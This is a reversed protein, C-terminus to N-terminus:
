ARIRSLVEQIAADLENWAAERYSHGRVVFPPGAYFHEYQQQRGAFATAMLDAAIRFLQMHELAAPRTWHREFTAGVDPDRLADASAPFRFTGSGSLERLADIFVPLFEQCWNLAAYVYRRNPAVGGSPWTECRYVQADVLAAITAEMAALRGLLERVPDTEAAGTARAIRNALGTMFRVKAVSRAASQHNALAHGPTQVYIQSSRVPDRHVFVRSWDVKVEDFVLVADGEDFRFALPSDAEPEGAAAFAKRSWIQLGPANCPVACTIAEMERDAAISQLNGIWIENALVAATALAKVGSLVVGDDEERIVRLGFSTRDPLVAYSVYADRDRISRWYDVINGTCEMALGTILSAVHDPSRGFLGYTAAAVREHCRLRKELDAVTRPWLFWASYPAGEQDDVVMDARKAVDLKDDFIAAVTKAAERFAPHSVVDGIREVGLYVVRGDRLSELYERGTRLVARGETATDPPRSGTEPHPM